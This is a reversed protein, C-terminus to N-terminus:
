GGGQDLGSARREGPVGEGSEVGGESEYVGVKLLGSKKKM